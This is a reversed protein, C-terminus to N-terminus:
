RGQKAVYYEFTDRDVALVVDGARLHQPPEPSGSLASFAELDLTVKGNFTEDVDRRSGDKATGTWIGSGPRIVFVDLHRRHLMIRRLAGSPAAHVASAPLAFESVVFGPPAAVTFSGADGDVVLWLSRARVDHALDLRAVGDRDDDVVVGSPKEVRLVYERATLSLSAFYVRAGPAVGAAVVSNGDFTVDPGSTGKKGVYPRPAAVLSVSFLLVAVLRIYM